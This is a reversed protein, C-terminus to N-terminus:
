ARLGMPRPKYQPSSPTLDEDFEGDKRFVIRSSDKRFKVKKRRIEEARALAEPTALNGKPKFIISKGFTLPALDMKQRGHKVTQKNRRAADVMPLSPLIIKTPSQPQKQQQSQPQKAGMRFIIKGSKDTSRPSLKSSSKRASVAPLSHAKMKDIVTQSQSINDHANSKAYKLVSNVMEYAGVYFPLLTMKAFSAAQDIMDIFLKQVSAQERANNNAAQALLRDNFNNEVSM